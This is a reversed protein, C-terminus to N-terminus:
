FSLSKSRDSQGNRVFRFYPPPSDRYKERNIAKERKEKRFALVPRDHPLRFLFSRERAFINSPVRGLSRKLSGGGERERELRDYFAFPLFSLLFFFVVFSFMEVKIACSSSSDLYLM